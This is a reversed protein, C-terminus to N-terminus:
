DGAGVDVPVFEGTYVDEAAPLDGQSDLGVDAALQLANDIWSAKIDGDTSLAMITNSYEERALEGTIGAREELVSLAYAEDSQLKRVGEYIAELALQVMESDSAILEDSAVWADPLTPEMTEGLDMIVRAEGSLPLDYSAPPLQVIADVTGQLLSENLAGYGLAVPEFDIGATQEVWLAFYEGTGGPNGIGVQRGALDEVSQIDSDARVQVSWGTSTPLGAGIIRQEIGRSRSVAVGAPTYSIIDAEGAVLAETAAGGGQYATIEVDLGRDEFYGEQEAVYVPLYPGYGASALGIRITGGGSSESGGSERPNSCGSVALALSVMAATLSM